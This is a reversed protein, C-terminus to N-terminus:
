YIVTRDDDAWVANVALVLVGVAIGIIKRLSDEV